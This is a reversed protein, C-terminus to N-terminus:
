LRAWAEMLTRKAQAIVASSTEGGYPKVEFAVVNQKGEGIYGINLLERLFDVVQTVGNEGGDCDFRPHLDGYLPHKPDRVVCNGIHAHVLQDGAMTLADKATEFQLPLHSLDMMLGFSPHKRRVVRSVEVGESTPGILSKKDITRDFVELVCSMSGKSEAYTCVEDLSQLLAETAAKHKEPGSYPGSLFAFRKAGLEYAEDVALKLRDVATKRVAPDTSNMDLKAGLEIPQSGFGVILGATKMLKAVEARVAPDAVHTVEIAGFFTDEAIQRVTELVPGEGKGTEPFAMFHVIGVKMYNHLDGNM